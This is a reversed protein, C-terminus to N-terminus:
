AQWVGLTFDIGRDTAGQSIYQLMELNLKQQAPTQNRAWIMPFEPIDLWFPYPPALYATQHAFVLNFRNFHNRALMTLYEDWYERSYYWDCELDANHLFCRIGRIPNKTAGKSPTVKCNIRIDEAAALLGCMLGRPDAGTVRNATIVYSEPTGPTKSALRRAIRSAM